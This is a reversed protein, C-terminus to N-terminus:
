AKVPENKKDNIRNQIRSCVGLCIVGLLVSALIYFLLIAPRLSPTSTVINKLSSSSKIIGSAFYAVSQHCLYISMSLKGLYSFFSYGFVPSLASVKSASICLCLFFMFIVAPTISQDLNDKNLVIFAYAMATINILSFLVSVAPSYTRKKMKECLAYATSGLCLGAISRLVGKTVIYYWNDPGSIYGDKKIMVSYLVIATLPAIINVFLDRNKRMIPYIVALGILMASLYWSASFIYWHPLGSSNLFLLDVITLAFKESFITQKVGETLIRVALCIVVAFAYCYIFGKIKHLLFGVTQTGIKSSEFKENKKAVSMATLYGTVMFFFEVCISGSGMYVREGFIQFSHHIVIVICCLFKWFDIEGCYSAPLRKIMRGDGKYHLNYLLFKAGDVNIYCRIISM